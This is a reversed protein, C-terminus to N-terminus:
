EKVEIKLDLKKVENYIKEACQQWYQFEQEDGEALVINLDREIMRKLKNYQQKRERVYMPSAEFEDFLYILAQNTIFMQLLTKVEKM